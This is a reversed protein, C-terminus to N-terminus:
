TLAAEILAPDGNQILVDVIDAIGSGEEGAAGAVLWAAVADCGPKGAGMLEKWAKRTEAGGLAAGWKEMTKPGKKGGDGVCRAGEAPHRTEVLAGAQAALPFSLLALLLPLTPKPM